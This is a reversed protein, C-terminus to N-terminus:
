LMPGVVEEVHSPPAKISGTGATSAPATRFDYAHLTYETVPTTEQPPVKVMQMQTDFYWSCGINPPDDHQLSHSVSYIPVDPGSEGGIIADSNSKQSVNPRHTSTFEPTTPPHLRNMKMQTTKTALSKTKDGEKLKADMAQSISCKEAELIRSRSGHDNKEILYHNAEENAIALIIDMDVNDDNLRLITTWRTEKLKMKTILSLQNLNIDNTCGFLSILTKAITSDIVPKIKVVATPDVLRGAAM